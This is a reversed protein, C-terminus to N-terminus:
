TRGSNDKEIDHALTTCLFCTFEAGVSDIIKNITNCGQQTYSLM